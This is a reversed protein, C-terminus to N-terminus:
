PMALTLGTSVDLEIGSSSDNIVQTRSGRPLNGLEVKIRGDVRGGGVGGDAAMAAASLAGGAGAAGGVREGAAASKPVLGIAQLVPRAADMTRTVIGMFNNWVPEIPEWITRFLEQVNKWNDILALAGLSLVTIAAGIPNAMAAVGLVRFAVAVGMLGATSHPASTAMAELVRLVPAAARAIAGLPPLLINSITDAFNSLENKAATVAAATTSIRRSFNEDVTGESKMIDAKLDRYQKMNPLIANLAAQVQQDNFLKGMAEARGGTTKFRGLVDNTKELIAEFPNKGERIAKDIVKPINVGFEQFNTITEGSTMKNLLNLLNNAAEGATGAGQRAIQLAAGLTAVAESGQLGLRAVNAGLTPFHQAMDKLEFAGKDGAAALRDLEGALAGPSVKLTRMLVVATEALDKIDANAATATRAIAPLAETAAAAEMGAVVMVRFGSSLQEKSQHSARSLDFIRTRLSALDADTMKATIAVDMLAAEFDLAGSIARGAGIAAALTGLGAGVGAIAAGPRVGGRGELGHSAAGLKNLDGLATGITSRYNSALAAGITMQIAFVNM